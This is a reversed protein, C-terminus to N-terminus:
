ENRDTIHLILIFKDTKIHQNNHTLRQTTHTLTAIPVSTGSKGHAPIASIQSPCTNSEIYFLMSSWQQILMPQFLKCRLSLVDSKINEHKLHHTGCIVRSFVKAASGYFFNVDSKWKQSLTKLCSLTKICCWSFRFALINWCM